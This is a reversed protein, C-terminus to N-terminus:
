SVMVSESTVSECSGIPNRHKRVAAKIPEPQWFSIVSVNLMQHLSQRGRLVMLLLKQPRRRIYNIIIHYLARSSVGGLGLFNCVLPHDPDSAFAPPMNQQRRKTQLGPISCNRRILIVM